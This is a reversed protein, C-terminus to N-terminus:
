FELMVDVFFEKDSNSIKAFGHYKEAIATISALGIGKGSHKTSRYGDKTKMVIGNFSNTSVIYLKNEHRVETTLFFYQKEDPAGICGAIANEMLNGFLSAMDLESIKLPEPLSINWNIEIKASAAMEHYYGFLANLAANACFNTPSSDTLLIEYEALHSRISDIDGKKALSALLCVSHRFDHRLKATQRMYTQLALYQHAQIELLQSREKLKAHKLIITAVQYFLVYIMILIALACLELAPFLYPIRGASIVSYSRPVTIINFILFIFSLVVTSYWIKPFNLNEVAWSFKQCAPYYFAAVILCSLGLQFFAAESSLSAVNSLPHLWADFATALQAPFTQVACVGVFIALQRSLDVTVTHRYLLFFLFLSFLLVLNGNILSAAHLWACIFSYPLLILFCLVATKLPTYRMQDKVTFYCSAASPLLVLYQLFASLWREFNM